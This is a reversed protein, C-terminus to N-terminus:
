PWPTAPRSASPEPNEEFLRRFRRVAGPLFASVGEDAGAQELEALHQPEAYALCKMGAAKAAQVGATSDEIVLVTEPPVGMASAALKFVEPDPKKNSVDAGTLVVSFRSAIGFHRLTEKTRESGASTAVAKAIGSEELEDLLKLIGPMPKLGDAWSAYLHEKRMGLIRIRDEPLDGFFHRLIEDRSGGARIFDMTVDKWGIGQEFFLAKWAREHLPHSDAIVGDLDFIVARLM